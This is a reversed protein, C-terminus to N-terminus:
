QESIENGARYSALPRLPQVRGKKEDNLARQIASDIRGADLDSQLRADIPNQEERPSRM